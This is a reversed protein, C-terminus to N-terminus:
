YQQGYVAGCYVNGYAYDTIETFRGTLVKDTVYVSLMDLMSFSAVMYESLANDVNTMVPRIWKPLGYSNKVVLVGSATNQIEVGALDRGGNKSFNGMCIIQNEM